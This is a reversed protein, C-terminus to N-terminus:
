RNLESPFSPEPEFADPQTPTETQNTIQESEPWYVYAAGGAILAGAAVSTWVWGSSTSSVASPQSSRASSDASRTVVASSVVPKPAEAKKPPALIDFSTFFTGKPNLSYNRGGPLILGFAGIFGVKEMRSNRGIFIMATSANKVEVNQFYVSGLTDIHLGGWLGTGSVVGFESSDVDGSFIIKSTRGAKAYLQGRVQIVCHEAVRSGFHLLTHPYITTMKGTEVIMTDCPLQVTVRSTGNFQGVEEPFYRYRLSDGLCAGSWSLSPFCCGAVVFQLFWKPFFGM